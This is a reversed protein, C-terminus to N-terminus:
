SADGRRSPTTPNATWGHRAAASCPASRRGTSGWEQPMELDSLPAQLRRLAFFVAQHRRARDMRRIWATLTDDFRWDRAPDRM